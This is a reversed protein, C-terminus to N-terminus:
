QDTRRNTLLQKLNEFGTKMQREMRDGLDKVDDKTAYNEAVHTKHDSLEHRTKTAVSNLYAVLPVVIALVLGVLSIIVLIWNEM